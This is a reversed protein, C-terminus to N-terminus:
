PLQPQRCPKLTLGGPLRTKANGCAEGLQTQTLHEAGSLVAGSLNADTLNASFPRASRLEVVPLIPVANTLVLIVASWRLVSLVVLAIIGFRGRAEGGGPTVKVWNQHHDVHLLDIGPLPAIGRLAPNLRSARGGKNSASM